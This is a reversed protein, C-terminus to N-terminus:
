ELTKEFLVLDLRQGQVDVNKQTKKETFGAKTMFGKSEDNLEVVEAQLLNIGLRKAKAACLHLLKMGIGKRRHEHSVLIGLYGYDGVTKVIECEAIIRGKEEAVMDVIKGERMGKAKQDMLMRIEATDPPGKFWTAKPTERYIANIFEFLGDADGKEIDRYDM